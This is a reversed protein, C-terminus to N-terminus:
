KKRKKKTIQYGLTIGLVFIIIIIISFVAGERPNAKLKLLFLEIGKIVRVDKIVFDESWAGIPYGVLFGEIVDGKKIQQNYLDQYFDRKNMVIEIVDNAKPTIFTKDDIEYDKPNETELIKLKFISTRNDLNVLAEAKIKGHEFKIIGDAYHVAETKGNEFKIVPNAYVVGTISIVILILISYFYKKM